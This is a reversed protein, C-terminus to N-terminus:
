ETVGILMDSGLYHDIKANVGYVSMVFQFFDDLTRFYFVMGNFYEQIAIKPLKPAIFAIVRGEYANKYITDFKAPKLGNPQQFLYHTGIHDTVPLYICTVGGMAVVPNDVCVTVANMALLFDKVKSFPELIAVEPLENKQPTTVMYHAIMDMRYQEYDYDIVNCVHYGILAGGTSLCFDIIANFERYKSKLLHVAQYEDREHFAIADDASYLGPSLLKGANSMGVFSHPASCHIAVKYWHKNLELTKLPNHSYVRLRQTIGKGLIADIESQSSARHMGSAVVIVIREEGYKEVFRSVICDIVNGTRIEGAVNMRSYDQVVLCITKGVPVFNLVKNTEEFFEHTEIPPIYKQSIENVQM